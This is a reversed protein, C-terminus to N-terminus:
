YSCFGYNISLIILKILKEENLQSKPKRSTSAVNFDINNNGDDFVTEYVISTTDKQTPKVIIEEDSSSSGDNRCLESFLLKWFWQLLALVNIQFFMLPLKKISFYKLKTTFYFFFSRFLNSFAKQHLFTFSINHSQDYNIIHLPSNHHISVFKKVSHKTQNSM